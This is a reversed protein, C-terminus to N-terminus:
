PAVKANEPATGGIRIGLCSAVARQWGPIQKHIPVNVPAPRGCPNGKEPRLSRLVLATSGGGDFNLGDYAGLRELIRALEAETVGVSAPRRGDVALLYLINGDPSLGAASRPHRPAKGGADQDLARKVPRGGLLVTQFGGAANEIGDLGSGQELADALERQSVIAAKKRPAPASAGGSYFVLADFRPNPRSVLVGNSVTIGDIFRDEGPAASVPSFPAANIGAACRRREVFSSVSEAPIHNERFEGNVPAPGSVVISLGPERLDARLAWFELRPGAVKGAFLALGGGFEQAYPTWQPVIGDITGFVAPAIGAIRVPSFTRCSIFLLALLVATLRLFGTGKRTQAKKSTKRAFRPLSGAGDAREKQERM